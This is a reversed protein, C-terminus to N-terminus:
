NLTSGPYFQIMFILIKLRNGELDKFGLRYMARVGNEIWQSAGKM